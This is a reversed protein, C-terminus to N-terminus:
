IFLYAQFHQNRNPLDLGYDYVHNEQKEGPRTERYKDKNFCKVRLRDVILFWTSKCIYKWMITPGDNRILITQNMWNNNEGQVYLKQPENM